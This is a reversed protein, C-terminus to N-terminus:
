DVMKEVKDPKHGIYEWEKQNQSKSKVKHLYPGSGNVTKFRYHHKGDGIQNKYKRALEEQRKTQSEYDSM